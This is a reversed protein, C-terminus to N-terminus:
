LHSAHHNGSPYHSKQGTYVLLKVVQLKVTAPKTMLGRIMCVGRSQEVHLLSSDASRGVVVAM